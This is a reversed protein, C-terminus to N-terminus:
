SRAARNVANVAAETVHLCKCLILVELAPWHQPITILFRDTVGSGRVDLHQLLPCKTAVAYMGVDTLLHSQQIQLERLQPCHENLGWLVEDGIVSANSFLVLKRLHPCRQGVALRHLEQLGHCGWVELEVLGPCSQLLCDLEDDLIDMNSLGLSRMAPCVVPLQVEESPLFQCSELYLNSLPCHQLLFYISAQTVDVLNMSLDM